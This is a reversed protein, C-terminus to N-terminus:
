ETRLGRVLVFGRGTDVDRGWEEIAAACAAVPYDHAQVFRLDPEDAIFRAGLQELEAIQAGDLHFVWQDSSGLEDGRWAAATTVPRLETLRPPAPTQANTM